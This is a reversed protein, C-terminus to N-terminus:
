FRNKIMDITDDGLVQISTDHLDFDMTQNILITAPQTAFSYVIKDVYEKPSLNCEKANQEIKLGHEDSGTAYFVNYGNLRYFRACVTKDTSVNQKSDM